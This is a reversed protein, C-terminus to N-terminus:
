SIYSNLSDGTPIIEGPFRHLVWCRISTLNLQVPNQALRDLSLKQGSPNSWIIRLTEELSTNQSQFYVSDTQTRPIESHSATHM